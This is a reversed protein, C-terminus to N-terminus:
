STTLGAAGQEVAMKKLQEKTLPPLDILSFEPAWETIKKRHGTVPDKIERINMYRKAKLMNYLCEPIHWAQADDGSYPIYKAVSGIDSNRFRYIQGPIDKNAPNLNAIRVRRLKLLKKRAEKRQAARLELATMTRPEDTTIPILADNIKERLTEVGINNSFRIGLKTAREKLLSLEDMEPEPQDLDDDNMKIEKTLYISM